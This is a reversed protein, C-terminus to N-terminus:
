VTLAPSIRTRWRPVCKWGPTFTPRPPSSVSNARAAPATCNPAFPPRLTTLMTAAASHDDCACALCGSRPPSRSAGDAYGGVSRMRDRLLFGVVHDREDVRHRQVQAGALAAVATDRHATLLELREAARVAAVAAVAAV